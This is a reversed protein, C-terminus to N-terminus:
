ENEEQYNRWTPEIDDWESETLRMIDSGDPNMTYIDFNGDRNSTFAIKSSDPSWAAGGDDAEDNTLNVGCFAESIDCTLDIVYIEWNGDRFTEFAIMSGDPSWTPRYDFSSDNTLRVPNSGDEDIIYIEWNDDRLTQIAIQTGDPSWSPAFNNFESDLQGLNAEEVDYIFINWILDENGSRFTIKSGDPSWSPEADDSSTQAINLPRQICDTTIQKCDIDVVYIEANGMDDAVYALQRGDPSWSPNRTDDGLSPLLTQNSGDVDMVYIDTNGDHKSIFSIQFESLDTVVDQASSIGLCSILFMLLLTSKIHNKRM